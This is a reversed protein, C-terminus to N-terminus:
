RRARGASGPVREVLHEVQEPGAQEARRRSSPATARLRSPAISSHDAARTGEVCVGGVHDDGVHRWRPDGVRREADRESRGADSRGHGLRRRTAQDRDTVREGVAHRAAGDEVGAQRPRRLHRGREPDGVEGDRVVAPREVAQRDVEFRDHALHLLLEAVVDAEELLEAGREHEVADDVGVLVVPFAAGAGIRGGGVDVVVVEADVAPVQAVGQVVVGGSRGVRAPAACCSSRSPALGACSLSM